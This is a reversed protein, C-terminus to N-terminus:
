GETKIGRAALAKRAAQASYTDSPDEDGLESEAVPTARILPVSGFAVGEITRVDRSLIIHSLPRHDDALGCFLIAGHTEVDQATEFGSSVFDGIDILAKAWSEIQRADLAEGDEFEMFLECQSGNEPAAIGAWPTSLGDTALTLGEATSIAYVRRHPGGWETQNHDNTESRDSVFDPALAGQTQWFARRAAAAAEYIPDDPGRPVIAPDFETDLTVQGAQASWRITVKNFRETPAEALREVVESITDGAASDDLGTVYTGEANRYGGECTSVAAQLPTAIWEGSVAGPPAKDLVIELDAIADALAYPM